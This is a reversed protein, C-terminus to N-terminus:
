RRAQAESGLRAGNPLLDRPVRTGAQVSRYRACRRFSGECYNNQWVRHERLTILGYMECGNAHPCTETAM